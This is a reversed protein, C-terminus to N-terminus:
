VRLYNTRIRKSEKYGENLERLRSLEMGFLKRYHASRELSDVRQEKQLALFMVYFLLGERFYEKLYLEDEVSNVRRFANYLLTLEGEKLGQNLRIGEDLFSACLGQHKLANQLSKIPISRGEFFVELPQLIDHPYPYIERGELTFSLSKQFLNLESSLTIYAMNIYELLEEDSWTKGEKSSETRLRSKLLPLIERVALM